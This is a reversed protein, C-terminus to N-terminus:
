NGDFIIVLHKERQSTRKRSYSSNSNAAMRISAKVNALCIEWDEWPVSTDPTHTCGDALTHGSIEWVERWGVM